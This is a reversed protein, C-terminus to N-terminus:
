SYKVLVVLYPFIVKHHLPGECLSGEGLVGTGKGRYEQDKRSFTLTGPITPTVIFTVANMPTSFFSEHRIRCASRPSTPRISCTAWGIMGLCNACALM